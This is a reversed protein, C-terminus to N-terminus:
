WKICHTYFNFDGKSYSYVVDYINLKQDKEVLYPEYNGM